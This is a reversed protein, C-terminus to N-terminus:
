LAPERDPLELWRYTTRTETVGDGERHVVDLRIEITEVTEAVLTQTATRRWSWDAHDPFVGTDPARVDTEALRWSTLLESALTAATAHRRSSALQQVARSQALLLTVVTGGLLVLAALVDILMMGRARRRM